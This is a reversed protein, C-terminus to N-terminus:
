INIHVFVAGPKSDAPLVVQNYAPDFVAGPKLGTALTCLVVM